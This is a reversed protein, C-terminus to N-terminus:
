LFFMFLLFLLLMFPPINLNFNFGFTRFPPFGSMFGSIHSLELLSGYVVWFLVRYIHFNKGPESFRPYLQMLLFISSVLYSDLWYYYKTYDLYQFRCSPLLHKAYGKSTPKNSVDTPISVSSCNANEDWTKLLELRENCFERSKNSVCTVIETLQKSHM